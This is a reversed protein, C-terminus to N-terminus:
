HRASDALLESIAHAVKDRDALENEALLGWRKLAQLVEGDVVVQYVALRDHRRQRYRRQRAARRAAAATSLDKSPGHMM